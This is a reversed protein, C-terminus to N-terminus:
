ANSRLLISSGAIPIIVIVRGFDEHSGQVLRVGEIEHIQQDVLGYAMLQADENEILSLDVKSLPM